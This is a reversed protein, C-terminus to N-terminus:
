MMCFASLGRYRLAVIESDGTGEALNHFTQQVLKIFTQMPNQGKWQSTFPLPTAEDKVKQDSQEAKSQPLEPYQGEDYAKATVCEQISKGMVDSDVLQWASTGEEVAYQESSVIVVAPTDIVATSTKVAKPTHHVLLHKLSSKGTASVGVIVCPTVEVSVFGHKEM